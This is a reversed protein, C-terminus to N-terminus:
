LARDVCALDLPTSQSLLFPNHAKMVPCHNEAAEKLANAFGLSWKIRIGKQPKPGLDYILVNSPAIVLVSDQEFGLDESGLVLKRRGGGDQRLYPDRNM